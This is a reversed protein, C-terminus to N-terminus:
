VQEDGFGAQQSGPTGISQLQAILRDRSGGRKTAPVFPRNSAATFTFSDGDKLKVRIRGSTTPHGEGALGDVTNWPLVRFPYPDGVRGAWLQLDTPTAVLAIGGIRPPRSRLPVATNSADRFEFGVLRITCVVSNPVERRISRVRLQGPIRAVLLYWLALIGAVTCVFVWWPGEFWADIAVAILLAPICLPWLSGLGSAAGRGLLVASSRMSV